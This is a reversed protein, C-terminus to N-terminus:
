KLRGISWWDVVLLRNYGTIVVPRTLVWISRDIALRSKLGIASLITLVGYYPTKAMRLAIPNLSTQYYLFHQAPYVVQM